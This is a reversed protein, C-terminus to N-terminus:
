HEDPQPQLGAPETGNRASAPTAAQTQALAEAVGLGGGHGGPRQWATPLSNLDPRSERGVNRTSTGPAQDGASSRATHGRGRQHETPQLEPSAPGTVAAATADCGCRHDRRDGAFHWGSRM